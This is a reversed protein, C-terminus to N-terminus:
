KLVNLDILRDQSGARARPAQGGLWEGQFVGWVVGRRPCLSPWGMVRCFVCVRLELGSWVGGGVAVHWPVGVVLM